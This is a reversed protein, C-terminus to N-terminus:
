RIMPNSGTASPTPHTTVIARLSSVIAWHLKQLSAECFFVHYIGSSFTGVTFVVIGLQDIGHCLLEVPYSHSLMLHYPADLVLCIEACCFYIGLNFM